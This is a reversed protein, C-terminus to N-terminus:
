KSKLKWEKCGLVYTEYFKKLDDYSMCMYDDFRNDKCEIVENSQARVLAERESDGAFIKGDWSPIRGGCGEIFLLSVSLAFCSKWNALIKKTM